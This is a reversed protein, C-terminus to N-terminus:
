GAISIENDAITNENWAEVTFLFSLLYSCINKWSLIKNKQAELEAKLFYIEEM